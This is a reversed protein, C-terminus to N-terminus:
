GKKKPTKWPSPENKVGLENSLQDIQKKLAEIKAVKPKKGNIEMPVPKESVKKGAKLTAYENELKFLRDKLEKLQKILSEDTWPSEPVEQDTGVSDPYVPNMSKGDENLPLMDDLYEFTADADIEKSLPSEERQIHDDLSGNEQADDWMDIWQDLDTRFDKDSM